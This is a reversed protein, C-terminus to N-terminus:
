IIFHYKFILMSVFFHHTKQEIYYEETGDLQLDVNNLNKLTTWINSPNNGRILISKGDIGSKLLDEYIRIVDENTMIKNKAINYQHTNLYNKAGNKIKIDQINYNYNEM